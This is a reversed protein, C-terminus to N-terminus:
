NPRVCKSYTSSKFLYTSIAASTQARPIGQTRERHVESDDNDSAPDRTQPQSWFADDVCISM